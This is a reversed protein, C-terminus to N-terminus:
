RGIRDKVKELIGRGLDHAIEGSGNRFLFVSVGSELGRVVYSTFGQTDGYHWVIKEGDFEDPFWGMGYTGQTGDNLTFQSFMKEKIEASLLFDSRLAKDWQAYDFLTTLLGGSGDYVRPRAPNPNSFVGNRWRYGNARGPVIRGMEYYHTANMGLPELIRETVFERLPKGSIKHVVQALTAFGFNNYRYTSGPEERLETGEFLAVYEEQTYQASFQFGRPRPIGSTHSLMHKIRVEGWSEPLGPLVDVLRDELSLKGEDILMMTVSACFAKSLSAIKFVTGPRVPTRTELNATGYFRREQLVGDVSIGVAIGSIHEVAMNARVLDDIEDARVVSGSLLLLVLSCARM